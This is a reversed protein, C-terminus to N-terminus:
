PCNSSFGVTATTTLGGGYNTNVTFASANADFNYATATTGPFTVSDVYVTGTTYPTTTGGVIQLTIYRIQTKDFPATVSSCTQTGLDAAGIDLTYTAYGATYASISAYGKFTTAFCPSPGGLAYQM